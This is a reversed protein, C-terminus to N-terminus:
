TTPQSSYEAVLSLLRDRKIPKTAYADCGAEYCKRCDAAMAHATLAVIPGIYRHDRLKRTAEYGDMVPMQMDMLILDFPKGASLAETVLQCAVQGNEALTVEAGANGLVMSILRQNDPSDEVLLVRCDLKAAPAFGPPKSLPDTRSPVTETSREVMEVGVLPGTAITARFTSGVGLESEVEVDGGLKRTLRMCITLGLGTGGFKRTTSTDAQTFPQFLRDIQSRTMGIGTDTVEFCIMPQRDEAGRQFRVVLRVYGQETFKIANGILNILIQRLRTPDTQVTKPLAAPYEVLFRLGKNDARGQMLSRIDEVVEMPSCTIYEVDLKGAEVKSLDLIDNIIDMLHRGNRQITEVALAREEQSLDVDLLSESFGLIATMPTRIEHSMNALFESKARTAAQVSFSHEELCRNASELAEAYTKLEREAQKRQAIDIGVACISDLDGEADLVRNASWAVQVVSGSKTLLESELAFSEQHEVLARIADATQRRAGEPLCTSLYDKGIIEDATYGLARLMSDNMKRIKGGPTAVFIYAASAQILAKNFDRERELEQTKQDVMLSLQDLKMRAARAQDWKESLSSALQQVEIKDFPKKLILFHSTRGLQQVIEEWLHDSFATCIVVLIDPDVEWIRSITEIGDWGPPMRVDVFAVAFPRGRSLARQVEALAEEGQHASDIEFMEAEVGASSEDFLRAAMEEVEPDGQFVGLIKRFDEHIAPNDDVVLIRRNKVGDISSM